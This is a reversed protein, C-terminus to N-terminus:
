DTRLNCLKISIDFLYVYFYVISYVFARYWNFVTTNVFVSKVLYGTKNRNETRKWSGNEAKVTYVLHFPKDTIVFVEPKWKDQIKDRGKVGRNRVYVRDGIEMEEESRGTDHKKRVTMQM